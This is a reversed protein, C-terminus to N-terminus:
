EDKYKITSPDFDKNLERPKLKWCGECDEHSSKCYDEIQKKYKPKIDDPCYHNLCESYFNKGPHKRQWLKQFTLM